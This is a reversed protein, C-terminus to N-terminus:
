LVCKEGVEQLSKLLYPFLYSKFYSEKLYNTKKEKM